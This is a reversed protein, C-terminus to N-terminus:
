RGQKQKCFELEMLVEWELFKESLKVFFFQTQKNTQKLKLPVSVAQSAM